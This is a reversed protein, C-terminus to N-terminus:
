KGDLEAEHAELDELTDFTRGCEGCRRDESIDFPVAGREVAETARKLWALLQDKTGTYVTAGDFGAIVLVDQAEPYEAYEVNREDTYHVDVYESSMYEVHISM